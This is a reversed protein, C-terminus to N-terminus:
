GGIVVKQSKAASMDIQPNPVMTLSPSGPASCVHTHLELQSILLQIAQNMADYTVLSQGSGNLQIQNSSSDIIITNGAASITYVRKSSDYIMYDGSKAPDQFIVHKDSTSLMAPVQSSGDSSKIELPTGLYVPKDLDGEMFYIEVMEGISPLSLNHNIQRPHCWAGIGNPPCWGLTEIEVMIKGGNEPDDTRVVKGFYHRLFKTEELVIERIM